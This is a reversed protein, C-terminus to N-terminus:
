RGLLAAVAADAAARQASIAAKLSVDDTAAKVAVRAADRLREALGVVQAYASSKALVSAAWTSKAADTVIGAGALFAQGAASIEAHGVIANAADLKLSWTDKEVQTPNGVLSQVTESHFEEIAALAQTKEVAFQAAVKEPDLQWSGNRWSHSLSPIAQETAGVDDPTKGVEDISVMGGDITNFLPVGRWDPVKVWEGSKFVAAQRPDCVPPAVATLGRDAPSVGVEDILAPNGTVTDYLNAGRWDESLIWAEDKFIAVQRAATEPPEIDTAFAPIHYVEPELPSEDALTAGTFFGTGPAYNYVIKPM